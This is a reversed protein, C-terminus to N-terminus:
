EHLPPLFNNIIRKKEFPLKDTFAFFHQRGSIILEFDSYTQALLSDLTDRLHRHGNYVPVGFSVTPQM